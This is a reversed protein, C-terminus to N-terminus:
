SVDPQAAPRGEADLAELHDYEDVVILTIVRDGTFIDPIEYGRATMKANSLDRVTLLPDNGQQTTEFYLLSLQLAGIAVQPGLKAHRILDARIPNLEIATAITSGPAAHLLTREESAVRAFVHGNVVLTCPFANIEGIRAIRAHTTSM